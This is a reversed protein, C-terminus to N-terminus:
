GGGSVGRVAPEVTGADAAVAGESLGSAELPELDPDVEKDPEVRWEGSAVRESQGVLRRDGNM